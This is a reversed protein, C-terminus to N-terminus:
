RGTPYTEFLQNITDYIVKASNKQFTQSTLKSYDSSGSLFGLEILVAPVTNRKIVYFGASKVGRNNMGLHSVLNNKFMTAM